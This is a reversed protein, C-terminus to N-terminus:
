RNSFPIPKPRAATGAALYRGHGSVSSGGGRGGGVGLSRRGGEALAEHAVGPVEHSQRTVHGDGAQLAILHHVFRNQDAARARALDVGHAVDAGVARRGQRGPTQDVLRALALRDLAGIVAPAEAGVADAGGNRGQDLILGELGIADTHPGIRHALALAQDEDPHGRVRAIRGLRIMLRREEGAGLALGLQDLGHVEVAMDVVRDDAQHVRRVPGEDMLLPPPAGLMRHMFLGLGKRRAVVAPGHHTMGRRRVATEVLDQAPRRRGLDGETQRAIAPLM